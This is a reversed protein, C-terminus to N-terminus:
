ILNVQLVDEIAKTPTQWVPGLAGPIGANNFLLHVSGFKEITLNALTQVQSEISIDLSLAILDSGFSSLEKECAMLKNKDTDVLVVKMGKSLCKRALAKGIGGAAGTIVSVKNEFNNM